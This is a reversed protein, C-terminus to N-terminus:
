SPNLGLLIIDQMGSFGKVGEYKPYFWAKQNIGKAYKEVSEKLEQLDYDM